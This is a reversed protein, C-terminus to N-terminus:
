TLGTSGFMHDRDMVISISPVATLGTRAAAPEADVVLPDMEYDLTQNGEYTLHPFGEVSRPQRLVQDIFLYTSTVVRSPTMGDALARVRVVTTQEVHITVPAPVRTGHTEDPLSGDLTYVVDAGDSSLVLDFPVEFFGHTISLRPAALQGPAPPAEGVMCAPTSTGEGGGDVGPEATGDLGGQPPGFVGSCGAIVLTSLIPRPM